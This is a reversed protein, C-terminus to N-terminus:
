EKVLIMAWKKDLSIRINGDKVQYKKENNLPDKLKTGNKWLTAFDFIQKDKSINLIVLVDNKEFKRTFGYLGKKNDILRTIFNGRQLASNEHRIEILKKYHSYLDPDFINEDADKVDPRITVYTEKEYVFERWLMPKRDDPDDAGWMGAEDGYYIMPAGVYTMQFIAILKQIRKESKNPKRPDYEPNDRLSAMRDYNRDPNRIMSAVRDTDHGDILNMLIHNTEEPYISRLRELEQDFESVSIGTKKDIFFDVVLKAVPYNMVSDFRKNAIWEPAQEWIEGVTYAEPNISKV